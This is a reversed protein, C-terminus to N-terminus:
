ARYFIYFYIFILITACPSVVRVVCPFPRVDLKNAKILNAFMRSGTVNCREGVNVFNLDPTFTLLELGSLRLYPPLQPIKRPSVDKLAAAAARITDPTTGCCGGAVNILGEDAFERCRFFFM